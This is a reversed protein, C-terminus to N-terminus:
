LNPGSVQLVLDYLSNKLVKTSSKFFILTDFVSGSIDSTEPCLKMKGHM